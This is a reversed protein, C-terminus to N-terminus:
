FLTICRNDIYVLFALDHNGGLFLTFQKGLSGILSAQDCNVKSHSRSVSDPLWKKILKIKRVLLTDEVRLQLCNYVPRFSEQTAHADAKIIIRYGLLTEM